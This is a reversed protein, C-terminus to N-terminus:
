RACSAPACDRPSDCARECPVERRCIEAGNADRCVVVCTGDPTCEVTPRCDDRAPAADDASPALGLWGVGLLMLPLILLKM